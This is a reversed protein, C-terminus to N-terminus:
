RSGLTSAHCALACLLVTHFATGRPNLNEKKEERKKKEKGKGKEGKKIKLAAARIMHARIAVNNRLESRTAM